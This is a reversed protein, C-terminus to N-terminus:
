DLQAAQATKRLRNRIIVSLILLAFVLTVTNAAIIPLDKKLLGYILWLAVGTSFIIYMMLSLSHTDGTKLVKLAQPLFACTTCIAALYGILHLADM